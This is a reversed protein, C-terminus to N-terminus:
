LFSRITRHFGEEISFVPEWGLQSAKLISPYHRSIKSVLYGKEAVRDQPVVRIKFEPFLSALINALASVSTVGKDNSINYAQGNEGKLLVTLFGATADALYCFARVATGQSKLVIDRKHIVDSVFDAFVRGDKLNMGPGYTHFPRVIKTPVEYQEHWAVCMTEGVRKGEAYCSRVNVPDVYGYDSETTPIQTESVEGYVEGSSFFLVGEVEKARALELLHYTGLVNAKLTGAPDIGFYKPSAQSAAHIIFDMPGEWIIPESVDQVIFELEPRRLYESFHQRAKAGNRVLCLLKVPEGQRRENLYLFTEVLYTPLFGNAGTILVTKGYFREWPLDRAIIGELDEQVIPHRM